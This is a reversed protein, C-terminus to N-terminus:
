FQLYLLAGFGWTGACAATFAVIATMVPHQAEFKMAPQLDRSLKAQLARAPSAAFNSGDLILGATDDSAGHAAEEPAFEDELTIQANTM